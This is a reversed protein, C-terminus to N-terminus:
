RTVEVSMVAPHLFARPCPDKSSSSNPWEALVRFCYEAWVPVEVMLIVLVISLPINMSESLLVSFCGHSFPPSLVAKEQVTKRTRWTRAGLLVRQEM